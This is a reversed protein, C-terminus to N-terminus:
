SARNRGLASVRDEVAQVRDGLAGVVVELYTKLEDDM